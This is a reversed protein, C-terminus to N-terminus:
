NFLTNFHSPNVKIITKDIKFYEGNKHDVLNVSAVITALKKDKDIKTIEIATDTKHKSSQTYTISNWNCEVSINKNNNKKSILNYGIKITNKPLTFNCYNKQSEGFYISVAKKNVWTFGDSVHIIKIDSSYCTSSLGSFILFFIGLKEM